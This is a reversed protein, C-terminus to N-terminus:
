LKGKINNIVYTQLYLLEKLKFIYATSIYYLLGIISGVIIQITYSDISKTIGWIIGGMSISLIYSPLIDKLQQKLGINILKGTYYTNIFLFLIYSILIGICMWIIGYRATIILVIVGVIKKAIDIKLFLDSRGKVQLLNNNLIHIPYLMKAICLIQLYPVCEIWKNTIIITILPKALTAVWIMIPFVIFASLAILQRYTAQLRSNNDQIQCLLPFTVRHLTLSITTAPLSSYGEARTYYGLSSASFKKAIVISYLNDYISAIIGAILLKSGFGFLEKFSKWSYEWTPRWKGWVWLLICRVAGGFVGPWVISWVGFGTYAMTVGVVGTVLAGIVSIKAQTKFDMKITFLAQQVICLSNLILSIATVKILDSLLPTNYFDAILPGSFFLVFYLVFGVVINFYFTTSLDAQTRDNKRVLATSFGSNILTQSVATFIALMGVMGYDSPTLVRALLVGIIFQIGQLSFNEALSWIMGKLTKGRLSEAM